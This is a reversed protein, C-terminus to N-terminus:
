NLKKIDWEPSQRLEIGYQNHMARIFDDSFNHSLFISDDENESRVKNLKEKILQSRLAKIGMATSRLSAKGHVFGMMEKKKDDNNM